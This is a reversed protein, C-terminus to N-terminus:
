GQKLKELLLTLQEVKKELVTIKYENNSSRLSSNRVDITFPELQMQLGKKLDDLSPIVPKPIAAIQDFIQNYSKKIERDKADSNLQLVVVDNVLKVITEAQPKERAVFATFEARLSNIGKIAVSLESAFDLDYKQLHSYNQDVKASLDNFSQKLSVVTASQAMTQLAAKCQGLEQTLNGHKANLETFTVLSKGQAEAISIYDTRLLRYQDTYLINANVIEDSLGKLAKTQEAQRKDAEEVKSYLVQFASQMQKLEASLKDYAGVMAQFKDRMYGFQQIEDALIM